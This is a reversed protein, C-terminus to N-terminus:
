IKFKLEQILSLQTIPRNKGAIITILLLFYHHFYRKCCLIIGFGQAPPQFGIVGGINKFSFTFRCIRLNLAATTWAAGTEKSTGFVKSFNFSREMSAALEPALNATKGSANTEAYGLPKSKPARTPDLVASPRSQNLFYWSADIIKINKKHLNKKLWSAKKIM